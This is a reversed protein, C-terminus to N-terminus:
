YAKEIIGSLLQTASFTLSSDYFTSPYVFNVEHCIAGFKFDVCIYECHMQLTQIHLDIQLNQWNM